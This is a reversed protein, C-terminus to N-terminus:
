AVTLPPIRRLFLSRARTMSNQRATSNNLGCFTGFTSGIARTWRTM